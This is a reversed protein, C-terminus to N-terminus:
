AANRQASAGELWDPVKAKRMGDYQHVRAQYLQAAWIADAGAYNVFLRWLPSEDPTLQLRGNGEVVGIGCVEQLPVRRRTKLERRNVITREVVVTEDKCVECRKRIRDQDGHSTCVAVRKVKTSEKVIAESFIDKFAGFTEVGLVDPVIAKLGYRERGPCIVRYVDLSDVLGVLKVGANELVHRDYRCNHAVKTHEASTLWQRLYPDDLADPPLVFGEADRYGRPRMRGDPIGVSWVVCKATWVASDEEPNCAVTETDLGCVEKSALLRKGLLSWDSPSSLYVSQPPPDLSM